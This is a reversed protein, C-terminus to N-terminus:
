KRKGYNDERELITRVIKIDTSLEAIASDYYKQRQQMEIVIEKTNNVQAYLASIWFAGGFLFAVISLSLYSNESIFTKM